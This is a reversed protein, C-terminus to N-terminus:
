DNIVNKSLELQEERYLNTVVYVNHLSNLDASFRFNITYFHSGEEIWIEEVTGVMIGEPFIHSFGSSAITDGPLVKVHAPIDHLTGTAPSGGEWVVTGMQNIRKIRASVKSHKNLMSMVWSFNPSVSVVTGVIGESNIVAMDAKVGHKSGKNIMIYNDRHTSSNSIVHAVMYKYQQAFSTDSVFYTSTDATTQNQTVMGLLRANKSSLIENERKLSFYSTVGSWASFVNGTVGDTLNSIVSRHYFSRNAILILSLVELLLFLFIFNYKWIFAFIHRM